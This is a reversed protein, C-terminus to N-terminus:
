RTPKLRYVRTATGRFLSDREAESFGAAMKKFANWLVAYSIACKDVPFNSEFMCREPGFLDIARRYYQGQQAVLEDSSPPRLGDDFGFGNWPMNLGGLKLSVNPCTALEALDRAWQAFIEDRRGAYPGIGLPTGLHDLVITASPFARALATLHPTQHHYHYADFSLGLEVLVAFGARFDRDGYLNGDVVGPMVMIGEHADWAAPQRIGRFLASAACHAELVARVRTGLRLEATGIMAGIQTAQPHQRARTAIGDVWTTEGVPKMEEPGSERHHEWCQLYVTQEVKHTATDAWLRDLDYHPFQSTPEFFHHHPDVIRRTPELIEETVQALWNERVELPM